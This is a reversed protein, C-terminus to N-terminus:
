TRWVSISGSLSTINRIRSDSSRFTSNTPTEVQKFKLDRAVNAANFLSERVKQGPLTDVSPQTQDVQKLEFGDDQSKGVVEASQSLIEQQQTNIIEDTLHQTKAPQVTILQQQDLESREDNKKVSINAGNNTEFQNDIPKSVEVLKMNSKPYIKLHFKGELHKRKQSLNDQQNLMQMWPISLRNREYNQREYNKQMKPLNEGFWIGHDIIEYALRNPCDGDDNQGMDMNHSIRHYNDSKMSNGIDDLMLHFSASMKGFEDPEHEQMLEKCNNTSENEDMTDILQTLDDIHDENVGTSKKTESPTEILLSTVMLLIIGMPHRSEIM